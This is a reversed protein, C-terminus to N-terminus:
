HGEWLKVCRPCLTLVVVGRHRRSKSAGSNDLQLNTICRRFVGLRNLESLQPIVRLDWIAARREWSGDSTSLPQGEEGRGEAYQGSWTCLSFLFLSRSWDCLCLFPAGLRYPDLFFLLSWVQYAFVFRVYLVHKILFTKWPRQWWCCSFYGFLVQEREYKLGSHSSQSLKPAVCLSILDTGYETPQSLRCGGVFMEVINKGAVYKGCAKEDSSGMLWIPLILLIVPRLLIVACMHFGLSFSCAAERRPRKWNVGLVFGKYSQKPQESKWKGWSAKSIGLLDQRRPKVLELLSHHPVSRLFGQGRAVRPGVCWQYWFAWNCGNELWVSKPSSSSAIFVSQAVLPQWEVRSLSLSMGPLNLSSSWVRWGCM